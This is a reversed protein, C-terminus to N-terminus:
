KWDVNTKLVKAPNGGLLCHKDSFIGKVISDSAIICNDPIITGKYIKVGCGIWVNNGIVIQKEVERKGEYIIEHFDEDLFQCDWSIICHNGIKLSHMIIFTTNPSMYGGHGISMEANNAIDFRCGRGISYSGDITLKGNINLLTKDSKHLFGYNDIGINLMGNCYINKIGKITVQQHAIINKKYFFKYFIKKCFVIFFITESTKCLKYLALYKNYHTKLSVM